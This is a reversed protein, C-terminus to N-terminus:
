GQLCFLSFASVHKSNLDPPKVPEPELPSKVERNGLCFFNLYDQPHQQGNLGSDRIADAILFYMMKMTQSQM